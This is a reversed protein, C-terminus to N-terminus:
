DKITASIALDCNADSLNHHTWECLIFPQLKCRQVYMTVIESSTVLMNCMKGKNKKGSRMRTNRALHQIFCIAHEVHSKFVLGKPNKLISEPKIIAFGTAMRTVSVPEITSFGSLAIISWRGGDTNVRRFRTEHTSQFRFINESVHIYIIKSLIVILQTCIYTHINHWAM